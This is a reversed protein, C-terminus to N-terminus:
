LGIKIYANGSGALYTLSKGVAKTYDDYTDIVLVATYTTTSHVEVWDGVALTGNHPVKVVGMTVVTLETDIPISTASLALSTPRKAFGLVTTASDTAAKVQYDATGGIVAVYEQSALIPIAAEAVKTCTALEVVKRGLPLGTYQEAM